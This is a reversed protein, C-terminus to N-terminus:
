GLGHSGDSRTKEVHCGQKRGEHDFWVCLLQFNEPANSGGLALPVIHDLEFGYPYEVFRGCGACCQGREQWLQMRMKTRQHGNLRRSKTTAASLRKPPAAVTLRPKVTLLKPRKRM